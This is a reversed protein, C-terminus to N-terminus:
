SSAEKSGSYQRKNKQEDPRQEPAHRRKAVLAALGGTSAASAATLALTTLCVPCM